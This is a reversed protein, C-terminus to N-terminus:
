SPISPHIRGRGAREHTREDCRAFRRPRLYRERRIRGTWGCQGPQQQTDNLGQSGRAGCSRGRSRPRRHRLTARPVACADGVQGAAMSGRLGHRGGHAARARLEWQGRRQVVIVNGFSGFNGFRELEAPVRVRPLPQQSRAAIEREERAALLGGHKNLDSIGCPVTDRVDRV